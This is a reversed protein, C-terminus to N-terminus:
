DRELQKSRTRLSELGKRATQAKNEFERTEKSRNAGKKEDEVRKRATQERYEFERTGELLKRRTRSQELGKRATQSKNEFARTETSRNAGQEWIGM